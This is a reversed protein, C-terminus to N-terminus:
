FPLDKPLTQPSRPAVAEDAVAFFAPQVERLVAAQAVTLFVYVSSEDDLLLCLQGGHTQERVARKILTLFGPDM